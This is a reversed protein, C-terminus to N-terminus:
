SKKLVAGQSRDSEKTQGTTRKVFFQEFHTAGIRSKRGPRGWEAILDVYPATTARSWAGPMVAPWGARRLRHHASACDLGMMAAIEPLSIIDSARCEVDSVALTQPNKGRIQLGKLLREGGARVNLVEMAEAKVMRSEFRFDPFASRDFTFDGLRKVDKAAILIRETLTRGETAAVFDIEGDLLAAMIPGWPKLRGGITGVADRLRVPDVIKRGVMQAAEVRAIFDSAESSTVTLPLGPVTPGNAVLRDLVILQEIGHHSIGTRYALTDIGVRDHWRLAFSLLEEREIAPLLRDGHRRRHRTFAGGKWLLELTDDKLGAIEGAPRLGLLEITRGNSRRSRRKALKANAHAITASDPSGLALYAGLLRGWASTVVHDAPCLSSIGSPWEVVARCAAHMAACRALCADPDTRDFESTESLATTLRRVVDFVRSRHTHALAEPLPLGQAREGESTGVLTLVLALMEQQDEPVPIPVLGSLPDGCQDCCDVPVLTRTWGQVIGNTGECFCRDQLIDWGFPCFPLDRLEWIAHHFSHDSLFNPSFRRVRTEIQGQHIDLGFFSVHRPRLPAYRRSLIEEDDTGIAHAIDALVLQPDESVLVRNRHNLGLYQLMGWSNPLYNAACSRAVLGRLSEGPIPTTSTFLRRLAPAPSGRVPMSRAPLSAHARRLFDGAPTFAVDDHDAM